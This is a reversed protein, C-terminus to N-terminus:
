EGFLRWCGDPELVECPTFTAKYEMSGCGKVYFGLYVYPIQRIRAQEIVSLVNWIGPSRSREDPDYFFYIASLGNPVDDVYGVGILRDGIYYRWEQTPFPNAVFSNIYADMDRTGHVPWQKVDSQFAHFRDYLDLKARNVAPAGIELRITGENIKRVRRQSRNPQFDSTLVRLSRCANCAQCRPRFLAHGFRRWGEALRQAYEAATLESVIEYELRSTEQPLYGCSSPSAMFQFAIEM